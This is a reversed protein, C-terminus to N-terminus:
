NKGYIFQNNTTNYYYKIFQKTEYNYIIHYNNDEKKNQNNM